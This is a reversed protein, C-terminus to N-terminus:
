GNSQVDCVFGATIKGAAPNSGTVTYNLRVYRQNGEPMFAIPVRKGAVLDALVVSSTALETPSSFGENDDTQVAIALSTLNDFDETVQVLLRLPEGNALARENANLGGNVFADVVNTSVASGTIAQGDSFLNKTDLIM